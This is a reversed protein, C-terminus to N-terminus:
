NAVNIQNANAVKTLVFHNVVILEVNLNCEYTGLLRFVIKDVWATHGSQDFKSLKPCCIKTGFYDLYKIAKLSNQFCRKELLLQRPWKKAIRQFIPSSKIGSDPWM